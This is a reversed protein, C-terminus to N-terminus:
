TEISIVNPKHEKRKKKKKVCVMGVVMFSIFKVGLYIM